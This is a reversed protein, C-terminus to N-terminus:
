GNLQLFILIHLDTHRDGTGTNILVIDNKRIDNGRLDSASISNRGPADIIVAEGVFKDLTEM